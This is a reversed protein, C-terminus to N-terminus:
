DAKAAEAPTEDATGPAPATIEEKIPQMFFLKKPSKLKLKEMRDEAAARDFYPFRGEEKMNGNFVGWVLRKRAAAKVKTRTRKKTTKGKAAKKKTAKKKKGSATELGEAAEIERRKDLRSSTRRAMNPQEGTEAFKL